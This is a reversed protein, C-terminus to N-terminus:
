GEMGNRWSRNLIKTGDTGLDEFHDRGKLTEPWLITHIDRMEGMRAVYGGM